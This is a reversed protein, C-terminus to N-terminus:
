KRGGGTRMIKRMLELQDDVDAAPASGRSNLEPFYEADACKYGNPLESTKWQSLPVYDSPYKVDYGPERDSPQCTLKEKKWKKGFQTYDYPSM